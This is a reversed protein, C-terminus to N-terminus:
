RRRRRALLSMLGIGGVMLAFSGPEPVAAIEVVGLKAGSFDSFNGLDNWLGSPYTHVYQEGDPDGICSGCDNPEGGAWSTYGVADGNTWVFTPSHPASRHLGIWLSSISGFRSVLWANEAADNVTVLHAGLASVAYSESETWTDASLLKYTHGGYTDTDIVTPAAVASAACVAVAVMAARAAFRTM